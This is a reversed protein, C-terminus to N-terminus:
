NKGNALCSAIVVLAKNIEQLQNLLEVRFRGNNNLMEIEMLVREDNKQKEADKSERIDGVIDGDEDIEDGFENTLPQSQTPLQKIPQQEVPKFQQSNQQAKLKAIVDKLSEM